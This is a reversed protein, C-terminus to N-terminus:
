VFAIDGNSCSLSDRMTSLDAAISLQLSFFGSICSLAKHHATCHAEPQSADM